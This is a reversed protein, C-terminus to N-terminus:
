YLWFVLGFFGAALTLCGLPWVVEKNEEYKGTEVYSRVEQRQHHGYIADKARIDSDTIFHRVFHPCESGKLDQYLRDLMQDVAEWDIVEREEELLINSLRQRLEAQDM